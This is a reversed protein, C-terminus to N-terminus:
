WRWIAQVGLETRYSKDTAEWGSGFTNDDFYRSQAVRAELTLHRIGKYRLLLFSRAGRHYYPAVFANYTLGNEYAYFRVDYGDTAFVALRASCSLAGLPRYHLDQYFMAGRRWGEVQDNTYGLDLRSRWELAKTLHYGTHFRALLRTRPVVPRDEDGKAGKTEVRWENYAELKRKIRYTLLLRYERGRSPGPIGYRLYPHRWRDYYANVRWRISPRYELGVYIGEENRAGSSEAFPRASLAQYDRAYRRYVLAIEAKRHLGLNLGHLMARGASVAGAVEGFFTLNRLRYRYDLSVNHLRDGRFYYRNYAAERPQLPLSLHEGLVNVALTLRSSPRYKLSGGYSTQTLAGRDDLENQTRNYGSPNMSSVTTSDKSLNGTRRRRSGFVTLEVDGFQLTAGAGRLFGFENVSAYPRLTPATRAVSTTLSSKGFGFGAHLILGQGFSVSFDGLALARVRKNLKQVFFHASYYDFGRRRNAGRLFPEGPDKEMVVGLSLHNGYRQRYKVYTRWPDGHYKPADGEYGRAVELRRSTRFFAERRGERLMKKLSVSLDDLGTKVGVFPLLLRITELDLGPIAQLEYVSLLYGMRDRYSLLRDIQTPSLLLTANLEAATARNLDLPNLAYGELLTRWDILTAEDVSENEPTIRALLDDTVIDETPPQGRLTSMSFILLLFHYHRPRLHLSNEAIIGGGIRDVFDTRRLM